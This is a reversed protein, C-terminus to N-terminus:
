TTEKLFDNLEARDPCGKRGGFTTCKLAAAASAFRIAARESQGEALALTFAGHWTDGAGLTDKVEVKFAPLHQLRGNEIWWTGDAGDTVCVWGPLDQAAERLAATLDGGGTMSLLGGRSFAIHSARRLVDIEPPAEADVVGPVGRSRALDMARAAGAPWRTDTLVAAVPPAKAIWDTDQSLGSGPFNVIMREGSADVCVASFSSRAGPTRQALDTHVGEADLDSLIMDGMADEGLRTGLHAVGGLRAIAVAANAAMGGGIVDADNAFYKVPRDPIADLGFVFDVVAIGIVLVQPM